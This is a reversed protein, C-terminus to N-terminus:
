RHGWWLTNIQHRSGHPYLSLDANGRGGWLYESGKKEERRRLPPSPLQMSKIRGTNRINFSSIMQDRAETVLRKKSLKWQELSCSKHNSSCSSQQLLSCAYVNVAVYGHNLYSCNTIKFLSTANIWRTRIKTLNKTFHFPIYSTEKGYCKLIVNKVQHSMSCSSCSGSCNTEMRWCHELIHRGTYFYSNQTFNLVECSGCFVDLQSLAPTQMHLSLKM